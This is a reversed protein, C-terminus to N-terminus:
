RQTLVGSIHRVPLVNASPAGSSALPTICVEAESDPAAHRFTRNLFPTEGGLTAALIAQM